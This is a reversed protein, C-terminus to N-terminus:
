NRGSILRARLRLLEDAWRMTCSIRAGGACVVMGAGVGSLVLMAAGGDGPESEGRVSEGTRASVSNGGAGDGDNTASVMGDSKDFASPALPLYSRSM